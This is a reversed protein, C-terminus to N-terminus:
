GVHRYLVGGLINSVAVPATRFFRTGLSCSGQKKAVFRNENVSYRYYNITRQEAAWGNKYRLLGLNDKDTRGLNLSKFGRKSLWNIAEWMVLNNARLAGAEKNSAGYKYIANDGLFLYVSAAVVTGDKKALVVIGRGDSSISKFLNKFFVYPQSPVGHRKRTIANLNYFEDVASVDDRIEIEVGNQLVKKINRKNNSSLRQFLQKPEKELRIEHQYFSEYVTSATQTFSDGRLDIHQWRSKKAHEVLDPWIEQLGDVCTVLPQVYDTFPLSVGRRGTLLSRVEMMPLLFILKDEAFVSFYEPEYGYTESLVKAWSQTHFFNADPHPSLLDDWNAVKLPNLVECRMTM